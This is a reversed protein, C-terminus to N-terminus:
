RIRHAPYVAPPIRSRRPPLLRFPPGAEPPLPGPPRPPAGLEAAVDCLAVHLAPWRCRGASQLAGRMWATGVDWREDAVLVPVALDELLVGDPYDHVVRRRVLTHGAPGADEWVIRGATRQGGSRASDVAVHGAEAETM